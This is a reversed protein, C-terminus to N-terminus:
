NGMVTTRRPAIEGVQFLIYISYLIHAGHPTSCLSEVNELESSLSPGTWKQERKFILM